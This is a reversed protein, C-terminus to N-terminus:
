CSKMLDRVEELMAKGANHHPMAVNLDGFLRFAQVTGDSPYPNRELWTVLKSTDVPQGIRLKM